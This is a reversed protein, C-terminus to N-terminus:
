LETYTEKQAFWYSLTTEFSQTCTYNVTLHRLFVFFLNSKANLVQKQSTISDQM